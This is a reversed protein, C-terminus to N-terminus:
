ELWEIPEISWFSEFENLQERIDLPITNTYEALMANYKVHWAKSDASTLLNFRPRPNAEIWEHAHKAIKHNADRIAISLANKENCFTTGKDLDATVFQAREFQDDYSGGSATIIYLQM